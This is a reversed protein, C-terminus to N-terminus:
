QTPNNNYADVIDKTIQIRKEEENDRDEKTRERYDLWSENGKDWGDDYVLEKARKTMAVSFMFHGDMYVSLGNRTLKTKM